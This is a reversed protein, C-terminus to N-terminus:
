KKSVSEFVYEEGKYKDCAGDYEMSSSCIIVVFFLLFFYGSNMRLVSYLM